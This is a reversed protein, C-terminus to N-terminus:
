RQHNELIMSNIFDWPTPIGHKFDSHSSQRFQEANVELKKEPVEEPTEKPAEAESM